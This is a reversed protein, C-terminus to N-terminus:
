MRRASRASVSPASDMPEYSGVISLEERIPPEVVWHKINELFEKGAPIDPLPNRVGDDLELLGLFTVGDSLKCWTYRIGKPQDQALASLIKDRTVEFDAVSEKKLKFRATLMGM